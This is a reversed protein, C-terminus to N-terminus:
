WEDHHASEALPNIGEALRFDGVVGDQDRVGRRPEEGRSVRHLLEVERHGIRGVDRDAESFILLIRCVRWRGSDTYLTSLRVSSSATAPRMALPKVVTKSRTATSVRSTLPTPMMFMMTAVTFERM